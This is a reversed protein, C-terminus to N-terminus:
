LEIIALMVRIGAFSFLTIALSLALVPNIYSYGKFQSILQLPSENSLPKNNTLYLSYGM